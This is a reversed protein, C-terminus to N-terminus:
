VWIMDLTMSGINRPGTQTFFGYDDTDVRYSYKGKIDDGESDNAGGLEEQEVEEIAEELM